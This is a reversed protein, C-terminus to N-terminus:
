TFGSAAVLRLVPEGYVPVTFLARPPNQADVERAGDEMVARAFVAVDRVGAVGSVAGLLHRVEEPTPRQGLEWGRGSRGGAVPDLYRRLCACAAETIEYYRDYSEVTLGASVCLELYDAEFIDMRRLSAPLRPALHERARRELAAFAEADRRFSGPLVAVSLVGPAARGLRDTHPACRVRLINPDACCLAEELEGRTVIRGGGNREANLRREAEDMREPGCGGLLPRPNTVGTVGPVTTCFGGLVGASLNGKEGASVSYEVCITEGPPPVAGHVADGFRVEGASRDCVYVPEDAKALALNECERWRVWLEKLRGTEERVARVGDGERLLLEEREHVSCMSLEDIWVEVRCLGAAPLRCVKGAEAAGISFREPKRGDRQVVRVANFSLGLLVPKAGAACGGSEDILRIFYGQRGFLKDEAFDAQGEIRAVGSHALGATGDLVRLTRWDKRGNPAAARYEWRLRACARGVSDGLEALLHVPGERLPARLRLYLAPKPCLTQGLLAAPQPAPLAAERWSLDSEALVLGCTRGGKDYRYGISVRRVVPALYVDGLTRPMGAKVPRARIFCGREAGLEIPELDDPCRFALRRVEGPESAAFLRDGGAETELRKWGLGNWYEWAVQELELEATVPPALAERRMLNKYQFPPPEPLGDPTLRRFALDFRVEVLAGKKGFAEGCGLCFPSVPMPQEGFPLFDKAPLTETGALVVDPSLGAGQAACCVGDLLLPEALPERILCRLFRGSKGHVTRLEAGGEFRLRIGRGYRETDAIERWRTGDWFQWTVGSLLQAPLNARSRESQRNEFELVLESRMKAYFVVDDMLYLARCQLNEGRTGDFLPIEGMTEEEKRTYLCQILDRARDTYYIAEVTNDVAYVSEATEFYVRGEENDAPAFLATGRPVPAGGGGPAVALRALGGASIPERRRAGWLNLFTLYHNHLRQGGFRLTGQMMEAYLRALAVGADPDQPDPRWEPTYSIALAWLENLIDEARRGDFEPTAM